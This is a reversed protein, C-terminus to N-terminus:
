HCAGPVFHIGVLSLPLAGPVFHIGVLSLPLACFPHRGPQTALGSACFPPEKQEDKGKEPETKLKVEAGRKLDM